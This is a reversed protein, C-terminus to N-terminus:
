AEATFASCILGLDSVRRVIAPEEPWDRWRLEVLDCGPMAVAIAEFWGQMEGECALVLSGVNIDAWNTPVSTATPMPKYPPEAEVPVPPDFADTFAILREYAAMKAFPVFGKGSEFIRGQPLELAVQRHEDTVVRLARMRVLGAAREALEVDLPGFWSARAKKAEDLGFVILAPEATDTNAAAKMKGM